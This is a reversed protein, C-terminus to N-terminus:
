IGDTQAPHDAPPPPATAPATTTTPPTAAAQMSNIKRRAAWWLPLMVAIGAFLGLVFTALVVLVMPAQWTTGFFLHLVVADQNNLAFAFLVFFIVAKLLWALYKVANGLFAHADPPGHPPMSAVPAPM